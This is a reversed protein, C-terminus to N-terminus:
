QFAGTWSLITKEKAGHMRTVSLEMGVADLYISIIVVPVKHAYTSSEVVIGANKKRSNPRSTLYTKSTISKALVFWEPAICIPTCPVRKWFLSVDKCVLFM